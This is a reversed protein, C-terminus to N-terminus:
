FLAPRDVLAQLYDPMPEGAKLRDFVARDFYDRWESIRADKFALVGAYPLVVRRGENTVFDDVGELFVRHGNTATEFIRWKIDNMQATLKSAFERMAAKGVIPPSGVHSHWVIDDDIHVLMGELDKGRWATIMKQTIALYDPAAAATAVSGAALLPVTASAQMFLRRDM